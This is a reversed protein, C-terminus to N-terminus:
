IKIIKPRLLFGIISGFLSKYMAEIEEKSIRGDAKALHGMLTFATAFFLRQLRQRDAGFDFGLMRGFGHDFFHGAMVGILAGIIGASFFGLVGGIIKGFVM